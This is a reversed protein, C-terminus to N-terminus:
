QCRALKAVLCGAIAQVALLTRILDAASPQKHSSNRLTHHQTLNVAKAVFRNSFYQIQRYTRDATPQM